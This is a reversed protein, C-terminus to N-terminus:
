AKLSLASIEHEAFDISKDTIYRVSGQYDYIDEIIHVEAHQVSDGIFFKPTIVDSFIMCDDKWVDKMISYDFQADKDCSCLEISAERLNDFGEISETGHEENSKVISYEITM